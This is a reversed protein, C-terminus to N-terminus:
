RLKFDDEARLPMGKLTIKAREFLDSAFRPYMPYITIFLDGPDGLAFALSELM